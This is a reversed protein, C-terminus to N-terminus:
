PELRMKVKLLFTASPPTSIQMKTYKKTDKYVIQDTIQPPPLDLDLKNIAFTNHKSILPTTSTVKAKQKLHNTIGRQPRRDTSNQIM